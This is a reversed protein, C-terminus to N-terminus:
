DISIKKSYKGQLTTINVIYIGKAFNKTSLSVSTASSELDKANWTKISQGLINFLSVEKIEEELLQNLIIIANNFHYFSNNNLEFDDNGLTENKFRITFRNANEGTTVPLTIEGLRLDHYCGTLNDHLYIEQNEDFNVVEELKFKGNTDATAKVNVPFIANEDFSGEAQIVLSKDLLPFYADNTQLDFLVGDFGNDIGSTAENNPTFGLLLQRNMNTNLATFGLRVLKYPSMEYADEQNSEESSTVTGFVAANRFMINSNVNDEKIFLRQNNNYTVTGGTASGKVFFAQGVPIFRGPIRTSSGSGSILAPAVPAVGGLATRVAYGGQYGALVHTNNTAYHEWFYLTGDINALNDNIFTTADLASPYPNGLLNISGAGINLGSSSILGNNPKGVFVYNQTSIAPAAAVGSGKMTYGQGTALVSNENVQQWNAYDPTLNTFKYLWYRAINFPSTSGNYGAVWNINTPTAPNTGNKMANNITFGTNNSVASAVTSVPPSWYNYNFLNGTGQQDREITGASAVDLDSNLTQILQSRGVLDMKGNLLLYHSVQMKTDNQVSLNRTTNVFLGLVTRNGTSVVDHNIRVINWDIPTTGDIVSNSNPIYNLASNTWTTATTWNGNTGSEYPLPATQRDVTTLNKLAGTINNDSKDKVNTYTYTSMPYYLRLNSWPLAVVENLTINQPIIVGKTFGDTHKDIEQNMLFRLQNISLPTNWVRVEDITGNFYKTVATSNSAAVLFEFVNTQPALLNVSNNLVGDIYMRATTGDYTVALNHWKSVPIVITSTISQTAAGNTWTMQANGAANIFFEYGTTANKKSLITGNVADRKIWASVTFSGNLNVNNGSNIYDTTGNFDISRVFTREPAFGFTIYKTGNFDYSTELNSGNVTMIRYEATPTFVPTDSIFMYFDGPPSLTATLMVSPLSIKVTGVDGGTELVKWIRQVATFDVNTTLAPTIGSSINVTLPAAAALSANNNGWVLFRRNAAFTNTNLNNTALIDTLGITIDDVKNVTKSQKQNLQAFDDRGIGAIDFNYGASATYITAGNSDVYDLSTGNTGLTIGYKIALYSEIKRRDADNNRADYTIVELIDGGYSADFFESRGLWYRSNLINKYTGTAVNTTGLQLGNNFLHMLSAATNDRKRPNFIQPGAYSKTLSIEAEGYETNAAQNYAIIENTYRASSNGMSFGTVDQSGQNTNVDDGCFIDQASTSRNIPNRPKVVIFMDHNNFGQGGYMASGGTFSVVPNFNVNNTPNNYFVPNKATQANANRTNGFTNDQWTTLNAGDTLTGINNDAKLWLRLNGTVGGPANTLVPMASVIARVTYTYSQKTATINSDNTVTVTATFTGVATPTFTVVFTAVGGSNINQNLNTTTFGTGGSIVVSSVNLTNSGLSYVQFPITIPLGVYTTGFDTLDITTPTIDGDPISTDNGQIDIERGTVICNGQIVFDYIGEDTDNNLITVIALYSGVATPSFTITFTVSGGAPIPSTPLGTVTFTGSGSLQVFPVGTLTLPTTGINQITFTRISSGGPAATPFLTGNGVAGSSAGDLINNGLGTLNIEPEGGTGRISFNFPNENSDNNVFSITANRIGLAGPTFNVTFNTTAGVALTAAPPTILTFEGANAGSFTFAGITLPLLGSNRIQFTRTLPTGITTAGFDTFDGLAPTADGDIINNGNGSVVIEPAVFGSLRFNDFAVGVDTNNGNSAFVVRFEVEENGNFNIDQTSVNISRTQWVSNATGGFWGNSGLSGVNGDYWGAGNGLNQWAGGNLRYQVKMGDNNQTDTRTDISLTINEYGTFDIVPSTTQIETDNQYQTTHRRSYMSNTTNGINIPDLILVFPRNHGGLDIDRLWSSTNFGSTSSTWANVGTGNEFNANFFTTQAQTFNLFMVLMFALTAKSKLKKLLTAVM